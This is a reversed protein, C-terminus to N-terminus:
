RLSPHPHAPPHAQYLEPQLPMMMGLISGKSRKKTWRTAQALTALRLTWRTRGRGMTKCKTKGNAWEQLTSTMKRRWIISSPIWGPKELQKTRPRQRLPRSRREVKAQRGGLQRPIRKPCFRWPSLSHCARKMSFRHPAIRLYASALSLFGWLVRVEGRENMMDESSVKAKGAGSAAIPAKVGLREQVAQSAEALIQSRVRGMESTLLGKRRQLEALAAAYNPFRQRDATASASSEGSGGQRFAPLTVAGERALKAPFFAAPRTESQQKGKSGSAASAIRPPYAAYLAESTSPSAKGRRADEIRVILKQLAELEAQVERLRDRLALLPEEKLDQQSKTQTKGKLSAPAQEHSRQPRREERYARLLEDAM